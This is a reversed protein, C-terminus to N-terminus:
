LTFNTIFAENPLTVKFTTQHAEVDRNAIKSTVITTAFRFRIDSKIHLYYITPKVSLDSPHTGSRVPPELIMAGVVAVAM